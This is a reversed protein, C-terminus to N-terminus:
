ESETDTPTLHMGEYLPAGALALGCTIGSWFATSSFDPNIFLVCAITLFGLASIWKLYSPKKM